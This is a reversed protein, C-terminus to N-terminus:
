AKESNEASFNKQSTEKQIEEKFELDISALDKFKEKFANVFFDMGKPGVVLVKTGDIEFKPIGRFFFEFLAEAKEKLDDVKRTIILKYTVDKGALPNNFDVTVRAGSVSLVKVLYHDLTLIMGPRPVIKQSTFSALPIIKIMEKKREGFAEKPKLSILYEKNFEKGELAKDLGAVVMGAGIVVLTRHPKAEPNLKKVDEEINSDFIENNSYGTYKIEVFDKKKTLEAQQAM